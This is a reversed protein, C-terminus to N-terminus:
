IYELWELNSDMRVRQGFNLSLNIPGHGCSLGTLVPIGYPEFIEKLIHPIYEQNDCKHFSGTIVGKVQDFMASMRMQSLMRDIKYAPEDVDEIFFVCDKFDPQFPTGIMHSLTALNGGLLKGNARGPIIIEGGSLAYRQTEEHITNVFSEITDNEAHALSTVTPGHIVKVETKSEFAVLLATIDSFGIFPKPNNQIISWDLHELLRMSGFGGRACMIVDVEPDAFLRTILGARHRDSGALYRYRENLGAQIKIKFGLQELQRVGKEFLDPKFRAAPACIGITEGKNLKSEKRGGM